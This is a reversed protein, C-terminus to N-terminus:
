PFVQAVMCVNSVVLENACKGAEDNDDDDDSGMEGCLNLTM